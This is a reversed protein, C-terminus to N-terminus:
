SLEGTDLDTAQLRAIPTNIETNEFVTISYPDATFQPANDNADEVTIEVDAECYRGGGDVARMKMRHLEEEERDLPLLTKLEGSCFM